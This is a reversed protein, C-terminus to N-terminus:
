GSAGSVGPDATGDEVRQVMRAMAGPQFVRKAKAAEAVAILLAPLYTAPAAGIAAKLGAYTPQAVGQKELRECRARLVEVLEYDFWIRKGDHDGHCMWDGRDKWPGMAPNLRRGCGAPCEPPNLWVPRDAKDSM